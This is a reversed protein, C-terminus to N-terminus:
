YLLKITVSNEQGKILIPTSCLRMPITENKEGGKKSIIIYSHPHRLSQTKTQWLMTQM